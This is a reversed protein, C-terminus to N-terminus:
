KKILRFVQGEVKILYIGAPLEGVEMLQNTVGSRLLHGVADYLELPKSETTKVMVFNMAPNPYVEILGAKDVGLIPEGAEITLVGNILVFTYNRDEEATLVIPYEGPLSSPTATTSAVPEKQLAAKTDGNVFGSYTMALVPILDGETIVVDHATVTLSAKGVTLEAGRYQVDYNAGASVSGLGIEYVGADEGAERTLVGSLVDEGILVGGTISYTLAPDSEGYVKSRADATVTLPAQDIIFEASQYQVDYNAGASVTGLGIQYVGAHEGAGRTLTGSLADAGILEGTTISYTLEPDAAGYVKSKADATVGISAQGISLAASEFQLEYNSSASLTGQNIPYLGVNEGAERELSGSLADEGVLNGETIVYDLEPDVAGYVKTQDNARVTLGKLGVILLGDTYSILYNTAAAGSVTIAYEGVSSETTAATVVMAPSSLVTADEEKVFGLYSMTLVPNEEGYVKSADDATILLDAQLVTLAGSVYTFEYNNDQADENALLVYGGADLVEASSMAGSCPTDIAALDDGNVFGAYSLTYVPEEAGYTMEADDVTLELMAKGITLVQQVAAAADYIDEDGTQMATITVSGAGTVTASTGSIAVISEDSSSFSVELGSSASAVLEFAEDGYVKVYTTDFTIEQELLSVNVTFEDTISGGLPDTVTLSIVSTGVTLQGITLVTGSLSVEVVADSGNTMAYVLEQGEPDEFNAAIDLTLIESVRTLEVDALPIAVPNANVNIEFKETATNGTADSATIVISSQGYGTETLVLNGDLIDAAIASENSNSVSLSLVDGQADAFVDSVDISLSEFGENLQLDDLFRDVIIGKVSLSVPAKVVRNVPDNSLIALPLEFDGDFTSNPNFTILVTASKGPAIVGDTDSFSVANYEPGFAVKRRYSFGGGNGDSTWSDWSIDYFQDSKIDHMSFTKGPQEDPPYAVDRWRGYDNAEVRIAPGSGPGDGLWETGKPSEYSSRNFQTELAANFIGRENQRTIWLHDAIRDQFEELKYDAYDPKVFSIEEGYVGLSWNLDFDGSNSITVSRTITEGFFLSAKLSPKALTITAATAGSGSVGVEFTPNVADDTTITIIGSFDGSSSPNFVVEVTKTENAKIRIDEAGVTFAPHDSSLIIVGSSSGTNTITIEQYSEDGIPSVGFALAEEAVSLAPAGLVTIKAVVKKSQALSNHMITYEQYHVGADLGDASVSLQVIEEDGPLIEGANPSIGGAEAYYFALVGYYNYKTFLFDFYRDEEVLYLSVVEGPLNNFDYGIGYSVTYWDSLYSNPLLNKSYGLAWKISTPYYMYSSSEKINFPGNSGNRTISVKDSLRLQNAELKYDTLEDMEFFGAWFSWELNTGGTNSLTIPKKVLGGSIMTVAITDASVMLEPGYFGAASVALNIVSEDADNSTITITGEYALEAEPTFTPYVFKSSGGRIVFSASEFTFAENDSSLTIELDAGGINNIEIGTEPTHSIGIPFSGLDVPDLGVEIEPEGDVHLKFTVLQERNNPDNTAIRYTFEHDGATTNLASFNLPVEVSEGAEVVGEMFEMGLWKVGKRREYAFGGGGGDDGSTWNTFHFDYYLDDAIMHISVTAGDRLDGGDWFDTFYSYETSEYTSPGNGWEFTQSVRTYEDAELINFLGRENARTLWVHDTIRDQSSAETPLAFNEKEFFVDYPVTWEMQGLGNNEITLYQLSSSGYQLTDYFVVETMAFVPKDLIEGTIQITFESHDPDNTTLTLIATIPGAVSSNVTVPLKYSAGAAMSFGESSVEFGANDIAAATIDLVDSGTSRINLDFTKSVGQVSSGFDHSQDTESIDPTGTTTITIPVVASPLLPDNSEVTVSGSYTGAPMNANVNIVAYDTLGAGTSTSLVERRVYSYGGPSYTSYNDATWSIFDLDFFREESPIYISVTKGPLDSANSVASPFYNVYDEKSLYQASGMAYGIQVSSNYNVMNNFMNRALSVNATLSDRYQPLNINVNEPKEFFVDLEPNYKYEPGIWKFVEYRTYSLGGGDECCTWSEIHLDFYRDESPIYISLIQGPLDSAGTNVASRFNSQYKSSVNDKASGLAYLIPESLYNYVGGNNGRTLEVNPTLRDRNQTLSVDAYNKKEFFSGGSSVVGAVSFDWILDSTGSNFITLSDKTSEGQSLDFNFGTQAISLVPAGISTASISVYLSDEAADSVILLEGVHSGASKPIFKVPMSVSAGPKVTFTKRTPSFVPNDSSIDTIHLDATGTSHLMLTGTSSVGAYTETFVPATYDLTASGDVATSLQLTVKPRDPDNSTIVFPWQYTGENCVGFTITYEASAGPEISGSLASFSACMGQSNSATTGSWNLTSSGNNSLTFVREVPGDANNMAVSITSESVVIQAAPLVELKVVVTTVPQIPDNSVIDVQGYHIGSELGADSILVNVTKGSDAAIEGTFPATLSYYPLMERRIYTFGGGTKGGSWQQMYVSYYKSATGNTFDIKLTATDGVLSQPDNGHMINFNTFDEASVENITGLAWSTGEPSSGESAIESKANFLSKTEDRTLWVHPAIRDQNAPLLWNAYNAKTFVVAKGAGYTHREMYSDIVLPADGANTVNFSVAATAKSQIVVSITDTSVVLQQQATAMSAGSLLITVLCLAKWLVRAFGPRKGPKALFLHYVQNM